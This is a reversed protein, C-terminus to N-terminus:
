RSQAAVVEDPAVCVVSLASGGCHNSQTSLGALEEESQGGKLAQLGLIREIRDVRQGLDQEQAM